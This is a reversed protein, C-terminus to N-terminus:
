QHTHKSVLIGQANMTDTTNYGRSNKLLYLQTPLHSFTYAKDWSVFLITKGFALIVVLLYALYLESNKKKRLNEEDKPYLLHELPKCDTSHESIFEKKLAVIM